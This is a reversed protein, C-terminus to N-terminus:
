GYTLRYTSSRSSVMTNTTSRDAEPANPLTSLIFFSTAASNHASRAKAATFFLSLTPRITKVSVMSINMGTRLHKPSAGDDGLELEARVGSQMAHCMAQYKAFAEKTTRM